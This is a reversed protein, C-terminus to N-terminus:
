YDNEFWDKYDKPEFKTHITYDAATITNLDYKVLDIVQGKVSKRTWILFIFAM